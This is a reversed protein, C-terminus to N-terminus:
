GPGRQKGAGAPCAGGGRGRVGLVARPRCGGGPRLLQGNHRRLLALRRGRGKDLHPLHLHPLHPLVLRGGHPVDRGRHGAGGARAPHHAARLEDALGGGRDRGGHQALPGPPLRHALRRVRDAGARPRRRRAPHQVALHRCQLRQLPGRRLVGGHQARRRARRDCGRHPPPRDGRPRRQHRAALLPRQGAPGRRQRRGGHRPQVAM